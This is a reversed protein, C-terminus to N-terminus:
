FSNECASTGKRSKKRKCFALYVSEARQLNEDMLPVPLKLCHSIKNRKLTEKHPCWPRRMGVLLPIDATTCSAVKTPSPLATAPFLRIDTRSERGSILDFIPTPQSEETTGHSETQQYSGHRLHLVVWHQNCWPIGANRHGQTQLTYSNGTAATVHGYVSHESSCM